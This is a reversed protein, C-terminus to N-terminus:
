ERAKDFATNDFATDGLVNTTAPAENAAADSSPSPEENPVFDEAEADWRWRGGGPPKKDPQLKM